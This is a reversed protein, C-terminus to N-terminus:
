PKRTEWKGTGRNGKKGLHEQIDQFVRFDIQIIIQSVNNQSKKGITKM